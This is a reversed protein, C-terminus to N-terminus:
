EAWDDREDPEIVVVGSERDRVLTFIMYLVVTLVTTVAKILERKTVEREVEVTASTAGDVKRRRREEERPGHGHRAGADAAGPPPGEDVPIDHGLDVEVASM